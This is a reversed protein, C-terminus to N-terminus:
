EGYNGISMNPTFGLEEIKEKLKEFNGSIQIEFDKKDNYISYNKRNEVPSVNPM